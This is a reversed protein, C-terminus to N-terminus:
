KLQAQALHILIDSVFFVPDDEDEGINVIVTEGNKKVVVGHIALPRAVYHYKKIGGYYHTDLYAMGGDEYLPNQKVDLRPSDIHAGLINMGEEIPRTGIRFAAISKNMMVSYVKDGPKLERKEEKAEELDIYGADELANVAYDVCERETKCQNLFDIYASSLDDCEKQMKLDYTNWANLREM